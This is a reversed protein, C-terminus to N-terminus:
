CSTPKLAGCIPCKREEGREVYVCTHKQALKIVEEVSLMKHHADWGVHVRVVEPSGEYRDLAVETKSEQHTHGHCHITGRSMHHWSKIPYHSLVFRRGGLSRECLAPLLEVRPLEKSHWIAGDKPRGRWEGGGRTLAKILAGDHNGPVVLIMGPLESLLTAVKDPSWKMSFDGLMYVRDEDSVTEKWMDTLARNMEATDGFPRNSYEIVNKHGFHLDSTFWVRM